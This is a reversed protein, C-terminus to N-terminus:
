GSVACKKLIFYSFDKGYMFGPIRIKAKDTFRNFVQFAIM